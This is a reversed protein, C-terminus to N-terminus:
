EFVQKPPLGVVKMTIDLSMKWTLFTVEHAGLRLTVETTFSFPAPNINHTYKPAKPM